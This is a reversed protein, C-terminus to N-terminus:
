IDYDFWIGGGVGKPPIVILGEDTKEDEGEVEGKEVGAKVEVGGEFLGNGKGYQTRGEEEEEGVVEVEDAKIGFEMGEEGEPKKGVEEKDDNGFLGKESAKELIFEGVGEVVFGRGVNGDDDGGDEKADGM